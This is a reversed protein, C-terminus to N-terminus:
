LRCEKGVRREESRAEHGLDDYRRIFYPYKNKDFQKVLVNSGYFGLNFIQIKKYTVIRDATGHIFLTPSLDHYKYKPTCEHAYIAGSYSIIGAFRLEKPLLQTLPHHNAWYYDTQLAIIAGASYGLLYIQSTDFNFVEARSYLFTIASVVDEVGLQIAYEM